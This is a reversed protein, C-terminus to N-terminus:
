LVSAAEAQARVTALYATIDAPPAAAAPAAAKEEPDTVAKAPDQEPTEPSPTHKASCEAGNQVSLDHIAQLRQGKTGKEYLSKVALVRADRNSPVSVFSVELLEAATITPTNDDGKERQAAMFGVSTHGIVGDAVLQRIEQARSTSAYFGRGVLRGMDDYGPVARGIPDNFDHFAHVPISEPLPDFAGKVIIEGDRDVSDTSMIIEFEGAPSKTSVDKVTAIAETAKKEV